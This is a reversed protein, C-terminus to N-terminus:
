TLTPIIAGLLRELRTRSLLGQVISNGTDSRKIVLLHTADTASFVDALDDVTGSAVRDFELLQLDTWSTMIDAVHVDRHRCPRGECLPNQLFQIPRPGLIDAATILGLVSDTDVVLLARVGAIIMDQLADDVHRDASVLKPREREFDTMVEIGSSDRSLVETNHSSELVLRHGVLAATRSHDSTLM